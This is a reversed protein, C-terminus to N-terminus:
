FDDNLALVRRTAVDEKSLTLGWVERPACQYYGTKKRIGDVPTWLKELGLFFIRKGAPVVLGKRWDAVKGAISPVSRQAGRGVAKTRYALFIGFELELERYRLYDRLAKLTAQHRRDSGEVEVIGVPKGARLLVADCVARKGGRTSIPISFGGDLAGHIPDLNVWWSVILGILTSHDNGFTRFAVPWDIGGFDSIVLKKVGM